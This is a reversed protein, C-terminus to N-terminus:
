GYESGSRVTSPCLFERLFLKSATAKKTPNEVPFGGFILVKVAQFRVRLRVRVGGSFIEGRFAWLGPSLHGSRLINRPGLQPRKQVRMGPHQM